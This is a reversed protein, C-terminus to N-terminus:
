HNGPHRRFDRPGGTQERIQIFLDVGAGQTTPTQVKTEYDKLEPTIFREANKLRSEFIPQPYYRQPCQHDIYYGFVKNYRSEFMGTREDRRPFQCDTREM